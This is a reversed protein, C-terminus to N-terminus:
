KIIYSLKKLLEKGDGCSMFDVIEKLKQNKEYDKNVIMYFNRILKYKGNEINEDNPMVGDIVKLDVNQNDFMNKYYYYECEHDMRGEGSDLNLLDNKSNDFYVIGDKGLLTVIYESSNFLNSLEKHYKLENDTLDYAFLLNADNNLFNYFADINKSSELLIKNEASSIEMNLFLEYLKSTLPLFAKSSCDIRVNNNQKNNIKDNGVSNNRADIVNKTITKTTEVIISEKKEMNQTSVENKCSSLIIISFFIVLINKLIIIKSKSFKLILKYM